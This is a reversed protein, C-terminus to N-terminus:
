SLTALLSRLSQIADEHTSLEVLRARYQQALNKLSAQQQAVWQQYRERTAGSRTNVILTEAGDSVPYRGPPPLEIELPDFTHMLILDNHQALKSLQKGTDASQQLFDSIIIVLSGPKVLRSSEQLADNLTFQNGNDQPIATLTQNFEAISSLMRLISKRSRAPRFEQHGHDSFVIGGIRDNHNLGTWALLAAAEAARVSKFAKQSGFFQSHSQDCIILIPREREEHFLKTHPKQRRATVRWDISRVDDGPQYARVESFEMGRGRFRSQHSGSQPRSVRKAKPLALTRAVWRLRMLDSIDCYAGSLGAGELPTSAPTVQNTQNASSFLAM